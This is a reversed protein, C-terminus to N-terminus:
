KKMKTGLWDNQTGCVKVADVQPTSLPVSVPRLLQLEIGKNENGQSLDGKISSSENMSGKEKGRRGGGRKGQM